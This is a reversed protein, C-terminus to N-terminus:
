GLVDKLRRILTASAGYLTRVIKESEEASFLAIPLSQARAEALLTEDQLAREFAATLTRVRERPVDQAM